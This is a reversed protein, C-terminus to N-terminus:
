ITDKMNIKRQITSSRYIGEVLRQTKLAEEGTVLISDQYGLVYDHFESIQDVHTTGWYAKDEHAHKAEEDHDIDIVEVDKNNHFIYLTPGYMRLVAKECHIEAEVEADYSYNNSAFFLLKFGEEYEIIGEATDEM